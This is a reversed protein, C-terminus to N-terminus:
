ISGKKQDEQQTEGSDGALECFTLDLCFEAHKDLLQSRLFVPNKTFMVTNLSSASQKRESAILQTTTYEM